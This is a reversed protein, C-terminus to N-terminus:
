THTHTHTHTVHMLRVQRLQVIVGEKDRVEEQLRRMRAKVGDYLSGALAAPAGAGGGSATMGRAGPLLGAAHEAAGGGAAGAPASAASYQSNISAASFEHTLNHSGTHTNTTLKNTNNDNTPDTLLGIRQLLADAASQSQTTYQSQSQSQTTRAMPQACMGREDGFDQGECVGGADGQWETHVLQSQPQLGVSTADSPEGSVAAAAAAAQPPPAAAAATARRSATGAIAAVVAAEERTRQEVEDLYALISTMKDATLSSAPNVDTTPQTTVTQTYTQTPVAASSTATVVGTTPEATAAETHPQTPTTSDVATVSRRVTPGEQHAAAPVPETPQDCTAREGATAPGPGAPQPPTEM